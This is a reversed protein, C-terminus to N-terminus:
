RGALKAKLKDISRLLQVRNSAAKMWSPLRSVYSSNAWGHMGRGRERLGAAIFSELYALQEENMAYVAGHRCRAALWYPLRFYPDVGVARRRPIAILHWHRTLGCVSCVLRRPESWNLTRQKTSAAQPESVACARSRPCLLLVRGHFEFDRRRDDRFRASTM